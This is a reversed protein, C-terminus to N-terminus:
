VARGEGNDDGVAEEGKGEVEPERAQEVAAQGLDGVQGLAALLGGGWLSALLVWGYLGPCLALDLARGVEGRGGKPPADEGLAEVHLDLVM